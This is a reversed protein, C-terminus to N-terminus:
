AQGCGGDQKAEHPAEDQEIHQHSTRLRKVVAHEVGNESGRHVEKVDVGDTLLFVESRKILFVHTFTQVEPHIRSM